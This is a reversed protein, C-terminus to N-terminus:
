RLGQVYSAVAVIEDESLRKAIDRMIRTAGDSKRADSAYARLQAATYTAYQGRLSPYSAAPNGQGAPGHCSMCAAAGTEAVGGRYIAEGKDVLSADAVTRSARQQSEYYVALNRMDDESLMKAQASMLVDSRADNKFAQLQDLIYPAHQGALTPWVPNVSNGDTGHCAGCTISKAKGADATGDVLSAAGVNGAMLLGLSFVGMLTMGKKDNM